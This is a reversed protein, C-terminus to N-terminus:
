WEREEEVQGRKENRAFEVLNRFLKIVTWFLTKGLCSTGHVLKEGRWSLTQGAFQYSGRKGVVIERARDNLYVFPQFRSPKPAFFLFNLFFLFLRFM